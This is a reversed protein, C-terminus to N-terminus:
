RVALDADSLTCSLDGMLFNTVSEVGWGVWMSQMLFLSHAVLVNGWNIVFM